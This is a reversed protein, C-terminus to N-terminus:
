DAKGGEGGVGQIVLASTRLFVSVDVGGMRGGELSMPTIAGSGMSAPRVIPEELSIKSDRREDRNAPESM